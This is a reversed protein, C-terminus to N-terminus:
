QGLLSPMLEYLKKRQEEDALLGLPLVGALLDPPAVGRALATEIDRRFPDFAANRSRVTEPNFVAITPYNDGTSERLRMSDYGKGKLYNVVPKTEYMMYNGGAYLDQLKPPIDNAVFFDKMVDMDTEPNFTKNAQIKLPYVTDFLGTANGRLGFEKEQEARAAASMKDYATNFEEGELRSLLDQDTNRYKIQRYLDEAAKIEDEAGIRQNLKGKGIWKSAFEPDKTAFALNDDYGARFLGTIDQKSGHYADSLGSANARMEPTNDKPLGLGGEDVSLAANRQATDLAEQQPYSSKVKSAKIADEFPKQYRAPMAFDSLAKDISGAEELTDISHKLLQRTEDSRFKGELAKKMAPIDYKNSLDQIVAVPVNKEGLLRLAELRHQGELVNGLDDVIIRSVFGDPSSIKEALEKVRKVEKPDTMRVGGTLQDIPLTKNGGLKGFEFSADMVEYVNDTPPKVRLKTGVNKISAGVPLGKTMPALLPSAQGLLGLAFAPEAAKRIKEYDPNLVSFGMEDPRTGLLGQVVAYTLPDPLTNVDRQAALARARAGQRQVNPNGFFAGLEAM